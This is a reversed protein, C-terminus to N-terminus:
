AAFAVSMVGIGLSIRSGFLITSLVDRGQDDTGLLSRPDGGAMFAPPLHSNLLELTGPDFPDHPAIWPALVAALVIIATVIAAVVTVKSRRFSYAVDSHLIAALRGGRAAARREPKVPEEM